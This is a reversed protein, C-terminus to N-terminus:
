YFFFWDICERDAFIKQLLSGCDSKWGAMAMYGMAEASETATFKTTAGMEEAKSQLLEVEESMAGSIATVNSIASEYEMGTTVVDQTFNKLATGAIEIGRTIVNAFVNGM